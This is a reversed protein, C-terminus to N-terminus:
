RSQAVPLQIFSPHNMGRLLQLKPAPDIVPTDFNDADACVVTIRIRSEKHFRYSTPLLSFALEFPEGAPIPTLDSQYHSHYPLGLNNFPAQCLKRHSARLTGETIYTSKGDRDVEELYVFVDLDPADTTLWLYAVPHGTVEVDAELPSTTYTLAKEDNARMDPYDHEEEVAVWRSKKGSTTTYDVTYVDFADPAPPSETTLFGDNVSTISGTKGEDFHFRKLEQKALPWQNSKQWAEKKPVGMVYYHIPPEEMIGNDFGKLWYDFWRHAEAEYDLDFQTADMGSHDLPRATLRKPVSLNDYWLFMDGLFIDYWGTTMYVPIGSNNVREIFPYVALIKWLFRGDPLKSDRFPYKVVESVKLESGSREQRAQALLTGDKDSDVPTILNDLYPVIRDYFSNFAKNYIGGRYQLADYLDLQSAAPFIAKLHPNGTGAAAFQIWAQQSDGYMGINGNCWARSAIWDLIENEERAVTEMSQKAIGFSAGTGPREVVIVAYGHRVMNRLWKTRMLSGMLHGQDSLWYRIRLIAKEYWKLDMFFTLLNKGDKDFIRFTRMYPTYKFLVPLPESAPVGKKTPLILDYALRTGDSLTLYDSIRKNGDYIAESYGQYKGFESVEGKGAISKYIFFLAIVLIVAILPYIMKANILRSM